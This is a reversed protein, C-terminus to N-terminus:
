RLALYVVEPKSIRTDRAYEKEAKSTPLKYEASDVVAAVLFYNNHYRHFVLRPSKQEGTWGAIGTFLSRGTDRNTIRLVSHMAGVMSIQTTGAAMQESGIHYAFPVSAQAAQQAMLRPSMAAVTLGFTLALTTYQNKM